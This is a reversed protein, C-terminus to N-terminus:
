CDPPMRAYQAVARQSKLLDHKRWEREGNPPELYGSPAGFSDRRWRGLRGRHVGEIFLRIKHKCQAATPTGHKAHAFAFLPFLNACEDLLVALQFPSQCSNVLPQVSRLFCEQKDALVPLGKM